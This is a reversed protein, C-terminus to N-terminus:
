AGLEKRLRSITVPSVGLYSAIDKLPVRDKVNQNGEILKIYKEKTTLSKFEDLEHVTNVFVSEIFCRGWNAWDCHQQYLAKVHSIKVRYFLSDEILETTEHIYNMNIYSNLSFCINGEFGFWVAKKNGKEDIYDNKVAGNEIFYLYPSRINEHILVEGKKLRFEELEKLILGKSQESLKYYRDIAAIVNRM